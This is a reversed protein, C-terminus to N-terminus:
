GPEDERSMYIFLFFFFFSWPINFGLSYLFYVRLFRFCFSVGGFTSCAHNVVDSFVM